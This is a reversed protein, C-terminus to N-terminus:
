TSLKSIMLLIGLDPLSFHHFLFFIIVIFSLIFSFLVFLFFKLLISFSDESIINLSFFFDLPVQLTFVCIAASRVYVPLALSLVLFRCMHLVYCKVPFILFMICARFQEKHKGTSFIIMNERCKGQKQCNLDKIGVKQEHICLNQLLMM